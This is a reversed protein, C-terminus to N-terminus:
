HANERMYDVLRPTDVNILRMYSTIPQTLGDEPRGVDFAAGALAAADGDGTADVVAGGLVIKRGSKVTIEVGQVRAESMVVDTVQARLLMEVAHEDLMELMVQEMVEPDFIGTCLGWAARRTRTDAGGRGAARRLMEWFLGCDVLGTPKSLRGATVIGGLVSGAEVLLTRAGERAAALAASVGAIGGGAVVVDFTGYLGHM